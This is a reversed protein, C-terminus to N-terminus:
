RNLFPVPGLLVTWRPLASPPLGLPRSWEPLNGETSLRRLSHPRSVQKPLSWSLRLIPRLDWRLPSARGSQALVIVGPCRKAFPVRRLASNPGYLERNRRHFCTERAFGWRRLHIATHRLPPLRRPLACSSWRFHIARLKRINETWVAPMADDRADRIPLTQLPRVDYPHFRM